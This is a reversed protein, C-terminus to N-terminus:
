ESCSGCVAIKVPWSGEGKVVVTGYGAGGVVIGSFKGTVTKEGGDGEALRFKMSGSLLGKKANCLASFSTMETGRWKKKVVSVEDFSQDEVLTMGGFTTTAPFNAVNLELEGPVVGMGSSMTYTMKVPISFGVDGAATWYSIQEVSLLMDDKFWAVFGLGGRRSYMSAYVPVCVLGNEGIIAQATAKVKTGDGMVGSVTARGRKRLELSLAGYGRAFSPVTEGAAPKAEVILGWTGVPCKEALATADSGKAKFIDPAGTVQFSQGAGKVEGTLGNEGLNLATSWGDREVKFSKIEANDGCVLCGDVATNASPFRISKGNVSAAVSVKITKTSPRQKSTKVVITGAMRGDADHLWGNYTQAKSVDPYGSTPDECLACEGNLIREIGQIVHEQAESMTISAPSHWPFSMRGMEDGNSDFVIITPYGVKGYTFPEKTDWRLIKVENATPLALLKQMEYEAMIAALGQDESLGISALYDPNMLWCKFGWGDGLEPHWSKALEEDKVHSRYPFDLMALYFGKAEVYEKWVATNLVMEELTECFPCWWSATNLLITCKGAAKAKALVDSVNLSWRGPATDAAAYTPRLYDSPQRVDYAAPSVAGVLISFLLLASKKM